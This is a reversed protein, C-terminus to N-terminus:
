YLSHSAFDFNHGQDFLKQRWGVETAVQVMIVVQCGIVVVVGGVLELSNHLLGGPYFPL